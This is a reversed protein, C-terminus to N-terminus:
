RENLTDAMYPSIKRPKEPKIKKGRLNRAAVCIKRDNETFKAILAQFKEDSEVSNLLIYTIIGKTDLDGTTYMTALGDSVRELKEASLDAVMESFRPAIKEDAFTIGRFDEYHAKEFAIEDKLEPFYTVMRNALFLPDVNNEGDKKRKKQKKRAASQRPGRITEIFDDRIGEAERQGDTDQDYLWTALIKWNNDPEGDSVPCSRLVLRKTKFSYVISYATEGVYLTSYEDGVSAVSEREYDKALLIEDLGATITEFAKEIEM